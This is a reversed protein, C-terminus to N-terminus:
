GYGGGSSSVRMSPRISRADWNIRISPQNVLPQGSSPCVLCTAEDVKQKIEAERAASSGGLRELMNVVQSLVHMM